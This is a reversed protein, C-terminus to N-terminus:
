CLCIAGVVEPDQTVGRFEANLRCIILMPKAVLPFMGLWPQVVLDKYGAEVLTPINPLFRSCTLPLRWYAFGDVRPRNRCRASRISQWQSRGEWSTWSPRRLGKYTVCVLNVSAAQLPMLDSFHLTPGELASAYRAAELNTGVWAVFDGATRVGEPVGQRVTLAKDTRGCNAVPMFDKNEYPIKKYIRPFRTFLFDPKFLLKNGNSSGNKVAEVGLRSGAGSRNKILMISNYRGRLEDTSLRVLTDTAGGAPLPGIIEVPEDSPQTSTRDPSSATVGAATLLFVFHRRILM